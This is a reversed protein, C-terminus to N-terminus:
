SPCNMYKGPYKACRTLHANKNMLMRNQRNLNNNYNYIQNSLRNREERLERIENQILASNLAQYSSNAAKEMRRETESKMAEVSSIFQGWTIEQNDLRAIQTLGDTWYRDAIASLEYALESSYNYTLYTNYCREMQSVYYRMAAREEDNIYNPNTMHAYSPYEPFVYELTAYQSSSQIIDECYAVDQFRGELLSLEKQDIGASREIRSYRMNENAQKLAGTAISQMAEPSCSYLFFISLIISLLKKM